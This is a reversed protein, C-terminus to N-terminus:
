IDRIKIYNILLIFLSHSGWINMYIEDILIEWEILEYNNLWKLSMKKFDIQNKLM